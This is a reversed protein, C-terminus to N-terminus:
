LLILFKILKWNLSFLNLLMWLDVPCRFIFFTKSKRTSRFRNRLVFSFRYLTENPLIYSFQIIIIIAFVFINM